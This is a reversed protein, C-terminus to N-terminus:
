IWYVRDFCQHFIAVLWCHCASFVFIRIFLILHLVVIFNTHWSWFPPLEITAVPLICTTGHPGQGECCNLCGGKRCYWEHRDLIAKKQSSLVWITGWMVRVENLFCNAFLGTFFGRFGTWVRNKLIFKNLFFFFVKPIALLAM